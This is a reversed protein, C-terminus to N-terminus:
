LCTLLRHLRKWSTGNWAIRVSKWVQEVHILGLPIIVVYTGGQIHRYTQWFRWSNTTCFNDLLIREHSIFILHIRGTPLSGTFFFFRANEEKLRMNGTILTFMLPKFGFSSYTKTNSLMGASSLLYLNWLESHDTVPLASGRMGVLIKTWGSEGPVPDCHIRCTTEKWFIFNVLLWM